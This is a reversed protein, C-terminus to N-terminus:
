RRNSGDGKILDLEAPRQRFTRHIPQGALTDSGKSTALVMDLDCLIM